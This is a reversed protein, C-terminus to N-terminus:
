VVRECLDAVLFNFILLGEGLGLESSREEYPSGYLIMFIKVWNIMPISRPNPAPTMKSIELCLIKM